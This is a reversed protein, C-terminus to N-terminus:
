TEKNLISQFDCSKIIKEMFNEKIKECLPM